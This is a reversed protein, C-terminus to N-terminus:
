GSGSQIPFGNIVIHSTSTLFKKKSISYEPEHSRPVRKDKTSPFGDPIQDTFKKTRPLSSTLFTKLYKSVRQSLLKKGSTPSFIM